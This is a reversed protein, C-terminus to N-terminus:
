HRTLVSDPALEVGVVVAAQAVSEELPQEDVVASHARPLEIPHGHTWIREFSTKAWSAATVADSAFCEFADRKNPDRRMCDGIWVRSSSLVLQEHADILRPNRAHRLEPEIRGLDIAPTAPHEGQAESMVVVAKLTCGGASIENALGAIAKVVPSELSRAVLLFSPPRDSIGSSAITELESQIFQRLRAEKEEKRVVQMSPQAKAQM